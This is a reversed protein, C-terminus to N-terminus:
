KPFEELKDNLKKTDLWERIYNSFEAANDIPYHEGIDPVFYNTPPIGQVSHPEVHMFYPMNNEKNYLECPFILRKAYAAFPLQKPTLDPSEPISNRSGWLLALRCVTDHVRKGEKDVKGWCLDGNVKPPLPHSTHEFAVRCPVKQGLLMHIASIVIQFEKREGDRHKLFFKYFAASRNGAIGEQPAGTDDFTIDNTMIRDM